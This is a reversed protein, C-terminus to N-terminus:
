RKIIEGSKHYGTVLSLPYIITEKGLITGPNLVANVGVNSYDGIVSGFKKLGTPIKQNAKKIFVRKKDLRFNALIAGGSINVNSGIISDGVYNLHAINSNNLILCNKLEVAHGIRCNNGIIVNGRLLCANGVYSDEGIMIKGKIAASKEIESGKGLILQRGIMKKKLFPELLPLVQWVFTINKFINRAKVSSLDFFYTPLFPNTKV